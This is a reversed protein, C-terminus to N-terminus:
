KTVYIFVVFICGFWDGSVNIEGIMRLLMHCDTAEGYMLSANLLQIPM